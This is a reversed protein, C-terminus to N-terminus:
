SGRAAIRRRPFLGLTADRTVHGSWAPRAM